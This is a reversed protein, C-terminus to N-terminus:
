LLSFVISAIVLVIGGGIRSSIAAYSMLEMRHGSGLVQLDGSGGRNAMCLGASMAAEVPYFGVFYGVVGSGIMSGLVILISIVITSVNLVAVFDGLDTFAIGIGAMTLWMLPKTLFSSLQQAGVKYRDPIINTVNLIVTIVVMYAYFHLSVNGISPLIYEGFAYAIIFVCGTLLLGVAMEQQSAKKKEGKESKSTLDQNRLIEGHGTLKPKANGLKHLLVAGIIAFNNAVNLIAFATSYYEEKSGGTVQEYMEALPVAGAGNGGGMIPLVYMSLIRSIPIGFILGGLIGLLAAGALGGLIAPIYGVCAKLLQKRNVALVSSVILLSIFMVQYGYDDYFFTAAESYQEPLVKFYVLASAGLFALVAGGGCYENWIPIREGVEGFLFGVAFLMIIVGFMNTPIYEFYLGVYVIALLVAAFYLPMGFVEYQLFSKKTQGQNLNGDTKASLESNTSM